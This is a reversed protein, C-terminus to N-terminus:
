LGLVGDIFASVRLDHWPQDHKGHFGVHGGSDTIEVTVNSPTTLTQYPAVPIWPDNKAHILLLPIAITELKKLGATEEYYHAAGRFGNRPGTIKDDFAWISNANEITARITPDRAEPRALYLDKMEALLANEYVRNRWQMLRYSAGAPDIPASVTAAGICRHDKALHPLANLLINGGMSYGVAFVGYGTLAPDLAELVTLVDPWSAGSYTDACTAQSSGAGRLNMRLVARGQGLHHRASELMYISDESGTLGHWQVVLPQRTPASPQHLTGTLIDGDPSLTRVPQTRCPLPKKRHVFRNRLTQLDGGWWPFRPRFPPPTMYHRAIDSQHRLPALTPVDFAGTSLDASAISDASM